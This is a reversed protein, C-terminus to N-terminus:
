STVGFNTNAFEGYLEIAKADYAKAADQATEFRGLYIPKYNFQINAEYGGDREHWRVGKFGSKNNKQKSRNAKNQTSTCVRLNDDANNLGDGDRHDVDMGAPANMIDRHMYVTDKGVTRVAYWNWGNFFAHWQWQTLYEFRHESVLAVKGQTLPIQKTM